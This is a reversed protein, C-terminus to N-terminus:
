ARKARPTASWVVEEGLLRPLRARVGPDAALARVPGDVHTVWQVSGRVEVASAQGTRDVAVEGLHESAPVSAPIHAARPGGTRLELRRPQSNAALDDLLLARRCRRVGRTRRRLQRAARLLRLPRHAPASRLWRAARVVRQGRGRPRVPVRRVFMGSGEPDIWLRGATGGRDRKWMAPDRRRGGFETGLVVGGGATLDLATVPGYPLRQAPGGDLSVARAWTSAYRSVSRRPWTCGAPTLGGWCGVTRTVGGRSACRPVVRPPSRMRRPDATAGASTPWTSGDPSFRLDRAPAQESTLQWARGGRVPALWVDDQAISVWWMVTCPPIGCTPTM